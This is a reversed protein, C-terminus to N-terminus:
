QVQELEAEYILHEKNLCSSWRRLLVSMVSISRSIISSSSFSIASFFFRPAFVLSLPPEPFTVKTKSINWWGIKIRNQGRLRPHSSKGWELLLRELEWEGDREVWPMRRRWVLVRARRRWNCKGHRGRDDESGRARWNLSWYKEWFMRM